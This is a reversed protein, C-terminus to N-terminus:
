RFLSMLNASQANAIQLGQQALQQQTQLAKQRTSAMTMDADVLRGIGKTITDRLRSVFDSQISISKQFAGLTTTAETVNKSVIDVYNIYGNIMSPNKVIDVKDLDLTPLPENSVSINYFGIGTGSGSLRDYNPDSSLQVNGSSDKAIIVHPWDPTLLSQLLTVMEDPTEITGDSKNLVSNVYARDFSYHKAPEQNVHFDFSVSVGSPLNDDKYDEFKTFPLTMSSGRTGYASFASLGGHGVTSSLGSLSLYSGTLGSSRDQNTTLYYATPDPGVSYWIPFDASAGKGALAKNLVATFDLNNNIVGGASPLAADVTARDIVIHQPTGNQWPAPVDAHNDSDLVLDFSLQDSATLFKLPGAFNFSKRAATGVNYNTPYPVELGTTDDVYSYPRIGGITGLNRGDAQLLGGGSKNLASLAGVVVQSTQLQFDGAGTRGASWVVEQYNRSRDKVDPLDTNLWSVGNFSASDVASRIGAKIQDLEAQVKTADVGPEKAAVLRSMFDSLQKGISDLAVYTTDAIAATMGLGDLVSGLARNDSRMTTSISWYAANDSATAVRLGTATQSQVGDLAAGVSRLTRLATFASANTHISTM